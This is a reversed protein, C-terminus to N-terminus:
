MVTIYEQVPKFVLHFIMSQRSSLLTSLLVYVHHCSPSVHCAGNGNLMVDSDSSLGHRIIFRFFPITRDSLPCFNTIKALRCAAPLWVLPRVWQEWVSGWFPRTVAVAAGIWTPKNAMEFPFSRRQLSAIRSPLNWEYQDVGLGTQAHVGISEEM